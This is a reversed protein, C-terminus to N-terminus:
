DFGDKFILDVEPIICLKNVPGTDLGAFTDNITFTWTGSLDEGDFTSLPNDPSLSGSLGPPAPNCAADVPDSAEDDLVVDIGETGCGFTGPGPINMLQISTATDEHELDIILDGPWTHNIDMSVMLDLIPGQENTNISFFQLTDDDPLIVDPYICIETSTTFSSAASIVSNGCANSATVRWYYMTNTNLSIASTYSNTDVTATDVINSFDSKDSLEFVYDAADAVANWEFYTSISSVGTAGDAPDVLTTGSPVQDYLSLDLNVSRTTGGSVGNITFPYTGPAVSGLNSVTFDTTGVPTVPNNSFGSLSGPPKGVSYMTVPDTFGLISGVEINFVADNPSCVGLSTEQAGVTFTPDQACNYCVLAFDQDTADGTNPVGDGAINTAAVTITLDSAVGADLFVAEYNNASDAAGGTVSFEGTFNNGLYTDGGTEVTLDLNNVQPSTGIAGAQDTYTMVVRVPKTPDAAAGIWSWDEGTNDFIVTQDYAFKSTDDFMMGMNPMGYGQSNSPLNDNASVGTLYTPHAVLYAKMMASSPAGFSGNLSAPPNEMWYYVLSAVGAVAPTSHSTGSSAAVTTQGSPRLQDCVSSGNYNASTSATGHIHTGPAIVEPKTRGGPSPGRSSFGIVDMANDAGTPGIGCGDTWNGDEDDPRYNESAGVTIMNKGNGPTGVTGPGSGSNGAAFIMILEQNGNETLDADRAGVDFAQSSDDYSGACGSCGWSNSMIQAGNDQVSQILGTDTGGCASLDFGPGFIRTGALQTFPNVGQTRIYGNPDIYPFGVRSEFGGVINTNLHGHGGISEATGAATCNGVYSLRTPNNADGSEHFTPDGNTTTGDGIGDDTVDVVPYSAPTTPFGLGSLFSAYGPMAPQSNDPTFDGVLIQNQVEDNLTREFYEGVWYSDALSLIQNIDSFKVTIRTSHFKMVKNWPAEVEVALGNILEKSQNSLPSETLQVVVKVLENPDTQQNMRQQITPGMKFAETYPASYQLISSQSAMSDLADRTKQNGWVLYGNNAVYHILQGGKVEIMDLWSQKIPGRFQIIHLGDGETLQSKTHKQLKGASVQTDFSFSDFLLMNMDNSLQAKDSAKTFRLAEKPDFDYLRFSGYDEILEASIGKPLQEGKKVIVKTGASVASATLMQAALAVYLTKRKM